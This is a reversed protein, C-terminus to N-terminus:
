RLSLAAMLKRVLWSECSLGKALPLVHEKTELVYKEWREQSFSRAGETLNAIRDCCKVTRCAEDSKRLLQWYAENRKTLVLVAPLIEAPIDEERVPTGDEKVGDELLDHAWAIEQLRPEEPMIEQVLLVVDEPHKWAPRVEKGDRFGRLWRVALDKASM